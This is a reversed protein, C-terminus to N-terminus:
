QKQNNLAETSAPGLFHMLQTAAPGAPRDRAAITGYVSLRQRVTYRLCALLVHAEYREAVETPMVALM